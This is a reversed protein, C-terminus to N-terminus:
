EVQSKYKESPNSGGVLLVRLGLSKKALNNPEIARDMQPNELIPPIWFPQHLIFFGMLFFISSSKPTHSLFGGNKSLPVKIWNKHGGGHTKERPLLLDQFIPQPLVLVAPCRWQGGHHGRVAQPLEERQEGRYRPQAGSPNPPPLPLVM